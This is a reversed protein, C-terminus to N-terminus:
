QTRGSLGENLQESSMDSNLRIWVAGYPSRIMEYDQSIWGFTEIGSARVIGVKLDETQLERLTYCHRQGLRTNCVAHGWAVYNPLHELSAYRLPVIHFLNVSTSRTAGEVQIGANELGSADAFDITNHLENYNIIRMCLPCCALGHRLVGRVEFQACDELKALALVARLHSAQSVTYPSGKTHITLWALICQCLYNTEKDAYEPAFIGQPAGECRESRSRGATALRLVFHGCDKIGEGRRQVKKRGQKLARVQWSDLPPFRSYSEHTRYLVFANVGINVKADASMHESKPKGASEFFQEPYLRIVYGDKFQSLNVEALREFPVIVQSNRLVHNQYAGKRGGRPTAFGAKVLKDQDKGQFFSWAETPCTDCKGSHGALRRCSNKGCLRSPETSGTM